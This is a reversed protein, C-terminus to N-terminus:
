LLGAVDRAITEPKTTSGFRAQVAGSRDLLFKAFNWKIASGFLGGKQEKLWRYVPHANTGNVDIKAFLPFTIGYSGHCFDAIEADSGPEQRGFQNCPFGLIEFGRPQYQAYLKQLGAYQPTFGCQSAVNVIMLVKGRYDALQQEAGTGLRARFDYISM